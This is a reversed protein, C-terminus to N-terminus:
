FGLNVVSYNEIESYRYAAKKLRDM